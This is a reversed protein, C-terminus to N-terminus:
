VVKGGVKEIQQQTKKSVPLKVTLKVKLESGGVIKIRSDRAQKESILKKELLSELDVLSNTKFVNLEKLKIITKESPLRRKGGRVHGRLYPLKKYFAISGLSVASVKGRAKQGKTGRGGTKGKGSGLGRGLRKKSKTRIQPLTHLRM